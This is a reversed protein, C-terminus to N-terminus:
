DGVEWHFRKAYARGVIASRRDSLWRKRDEASLKIDPYVELYSEADVPFVQLVTRSDQYIGGYWTSHTVSRVGPVSHIRSAYSLPLPQIFSVKHTSILRDAGALEVGGSFGNGLASLVGYLLFAVIVSATTFLTRLKHRQLSAWVLPLLKFM